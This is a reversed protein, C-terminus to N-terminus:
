PTSALRISNASVARRYVDFMEQSAGIPGGTWFACAGAIQADSFAKQKETFMQGAERSSLEGAMMSMVRTTMVQQVDMGFQWLDFM